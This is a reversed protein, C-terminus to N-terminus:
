CPSKNLIEVRSLTENVLHSFNDLTGEQFIQTCPELSLHTDQPGPHKANTSFSSGSPQLINLWTPALLCYRVYFSLCFGLLYELHLMQRFSSPLFTLVLYLTTPYSSSARSSLLPPPCPSHRSLNDSTRSLGM